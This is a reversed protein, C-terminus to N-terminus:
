GNAFSNRKAQVYLTHEKLEKKSGVYRKVLDSLMKIQDASYIDPYKDIERKLEFFGRGRTDTLIIKNDNPLLYCDKGASLKGYYSFQFLNNLIVTNYIFPVAINEIALIQKLYRVHQENQTFPNTFMDFTKGTVRWMDHTLSGTIQTEADGIHSKCEICFIGKTTIFVMDIEVSGPIGMAFDGNPILLNQFAITNFTDKITQATKREFATGRKQPMNTSESALFVIIFIILSLTIMINM